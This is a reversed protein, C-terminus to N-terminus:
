DLVGDPAYTSEIYIGGEIDGDTFLGVISGEVLLDAYGDMPVICAGVVDGSTM